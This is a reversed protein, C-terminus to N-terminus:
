SSKWKILEAILVDAKNRLILGMYRTSPSYKNKIRYKYEDLDKLVRLRGYSLLEKERIEKKSHKEPM